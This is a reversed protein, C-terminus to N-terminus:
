AQPQKPDSVLAASHILESCFRISLLQLNSVYRAQAVAQAVAHAVAAIIALWTKPHVSRPVARISSLASFAPRSRYRLRNVYSTSVSKGTVRGPHLIVTFKLVFTESVTGFQPDDFM